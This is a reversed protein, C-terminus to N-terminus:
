RDGDIDAAGDRIDGAPILERARQEDVARELAPALIGITCDAIACVRIAVRRHRHVHTTGDHGHGCSFLKRDGLEGIARELPLFL